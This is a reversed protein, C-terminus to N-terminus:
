RFINGDIIELFFPPNFNGFLMAMSKSNFYCAKQQRVTVLRNSNSFEFKNRFFSGSYLHFPFPFFKTLNMNEKFFLTEKEFLAESRKLEPIYESPM